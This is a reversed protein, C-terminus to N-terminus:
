IGTVFYLKTHATGHQARACTTMRNLGLRASKNYSVIKREKDGDDDGDGDQFYISINSWYLSQLTLNAPFLLFKVFVLNTIKKTFFLVEYLLQLYPQRKGGRRIGYSLNRWWLLRNVQHHCTLVFCATVIFVFHRCCILRRRVYVAFFASRLTLDMHYRSRHTLYRRWVM